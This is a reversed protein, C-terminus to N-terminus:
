AETVTETPTSPAEAEPFALQVYQGALVDYRWGDALSLTPEADMAVKAVREMEAQFRETFQSSVALIAPSAPHNALIAPITM